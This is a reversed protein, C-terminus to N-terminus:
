DAPHGAFEARTLEEYRQEAATAKPRNLVSGLWGHQGALEARLKGPHRRLLGCIAPCSM